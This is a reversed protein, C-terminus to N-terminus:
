KTETTLGSKLYIEEKETNLNWKLGVINNRDTSLRSFSKWAANAITGVSTHAKIGSLNDM